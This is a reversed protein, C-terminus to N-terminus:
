LQQYTIYLKMNDSHIGTTIVSRELFVNGSPSYLWLGNNDTEGELIDRIYAGIEFHYEGDVYEEGIYTGNSIYESLHYYENEPDAGKLVLGPIASYTDELSFESPATKIILEARLIAISGLDLLNEIYPIYIKSRVGGLSQIFALSDQVFEQDISNEFTTGSYDHTYMNFYVEDAVSSGVSLTISGSDPEEDDNIGSFYIMLNSKDSDVKYLYGDDDDFDAKIYLGRFFYNWLTDNSYFISDDENILEEAFSQNLVIEITDSDLNLDIQQEGILEGSLYESPDQDHYYTSNDLLISTNLKYVSLTQTKSINGYFSLTDTILTLIVSDAVKNEFGSLYAPWDTGIVVGFQSLFSAGTYGFIPDTLEGLVFEPLGLSIVTDASATYVEVTFSDIITANLLDDEPLIGLGLDSETQCSFILMTISILAYNFLRKM